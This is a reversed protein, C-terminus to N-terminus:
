RPRPLIPSASPLARSIVVLSNSDCSRSVPSVLLVTNSGFGYRRRVSTGCRMKRFALRSLEGRERSGDLPGSENNDASVITDNPGPTPVSSDLNKAQKFRFRRSCMVKPAPIYVLGSLTHATGYLVVDGWTSSDLHVVVRGPNDMVPQLTLGDPQGTASEGYCIM